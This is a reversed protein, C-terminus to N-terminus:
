DLKVYAFHTYAALDALPVGRLYKEFEVSTEILPPTSDADKFRSQGSLASSTLPPFEYYTTVQAMADDGQKVHDEWTQSTHV